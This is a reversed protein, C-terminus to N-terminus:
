SWTSGPYPNSAECYLSGVAIAKGTWQSFHKNVTDSGGFLLRDSLFSGTLYMVAAVDGNATEVYDRLVGALTQSGDTNASNVLVVKGSASILGLCSGPLLTTPTPAGNQNAAQGGAITIKVRQRPADRQSGFIGTHDTRFAGEARQNRTIYKCLHTSV